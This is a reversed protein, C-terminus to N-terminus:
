KFLSDWFLALVTGLSLAAAIIVLALRNIGKSHQVPYPTGDSFSVEISKLYDDYERLLEGADQYRNSPRTQLMKSLIDTIPKPMRLAMEKLDPQNSPNFQPIRGTLLVHLIVGLAYIDGQESRKKEPPAFWDKKGEYHLPCGFDTVKIHESQDFLINSPRLNGHTINNKHAFDLARAIAIAIVMAEQWSYTKALRDALSGGPMYETVIVTKRHDGGAGVVTVINEHHLRSLITAEKLGADHRNTKKIVFLRGAQKNEVLYTAGYRTEKITDLFRCKGVFSDVGTVTIDAQKPSYIEGNFAYLLADKLAAATSYREGPQQALCQMIITDMEKPANRNIESPMKFHGEPRCGCVIEYLIVGMSFIDAAATVGASSLKQEPAMYAATGMVMDSSTIEQNTRGHFQAIGFDAVRANGQRDILINAPKIDRHIVGNKHAFDLAKCVQIVIDIKTKLDVAPDQIVSKFDTGDIYEMVFYYRGGKTGKDIVHVINPHNLRAILISEREFRRVIESDLNYQPSLIKIAVQRQLSTQLGKFVEAIGGQGIKTLIQYDGIRPASPQSAVNQAM